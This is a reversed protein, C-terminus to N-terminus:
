VDAGGVKGAVQELLYRLAEAPTVVRRGNALTAQQRDLADAIRRLANTQDVTLKTNVHLAWTVAPFERAYAIDIQVSEEPTKSSATAM